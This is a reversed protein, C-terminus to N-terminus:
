PEPENYFRRYVEAYAIGYHIDHTWTRRTALQDPYAVCHAWEHVLTDLQVQRPEIASIRIIFKGNVLTTEGLHPEPKAEDPMSASLGHIARNVRYVVVPKTLPCREKLEVIWKKWKREFSTAM